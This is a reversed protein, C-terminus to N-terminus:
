EVTGANYQASGSPVVGIPIAGAAVFFDEAKGNGPKNSYAHRNLHLEKSYCFLKSSLTHDLKLERLPCRKTLQALRQERHKGDELLNQRVSKKGHIGLISSVVRRNGFFRFHCQNWRHASSLKQRELNPLFYLGM